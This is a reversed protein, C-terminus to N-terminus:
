GKVRGLLVASGTYTGTGYFTATAGANGAELMALYHYGVAPYAAYAAAGTSQNASTLVITNGAQATSFATTTDLGLGIRFSLLGAMDQTLVCGYSAQVEVEAVGIVFEVQNTATARVQRITASTAYAWSATTEAKALSRDVRNYYNWILRSLVSDTTQGSVSSTRFSGLYLRTLAGTKVYVGNQTTLATARTTDNTWATLELAMVGANDYVFVDYMQNTTAPVAISLQAFATQAWSTGDFLALQNCGGYPAYYITTIATVDATTVPVGTTGTLRGCPPGRPGVPAAMQGVYFDTNSLAVGVRYANTPPTVALAGPTSSLYYPIGETMVGIGIDVSGQIRINAGSGNVADLTVMGVMAVSTSSWVNDADTLYWTGALTGAPNIGNSLYVMQGQSVTQGVRGVVDVVATTSPVAIVRDVSWITVGTDPVCTPSVVGTFDKLVLKYSSGPTLFFGNSSPRGASDFLLPNANATGSETAYSTALTTTGAVFVCMGGDGLVAGTNDFYQQLIFPAPTYQASAPSALAVLLGVVLVIRKM